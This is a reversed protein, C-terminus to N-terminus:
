TRSPSAKSAADAQDSRLEPHEALFAMWEADGEGTGYGGPRTLWRMLRKRFVVALAFVVVLLSNWIVLVVITVTSM